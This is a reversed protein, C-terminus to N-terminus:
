IVFFNYVEDDKKSIRSKTACIERCCFVTSTIALFMELITAAIIGADLRYETGLRTM